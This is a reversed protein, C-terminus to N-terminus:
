PGEPGILATERLKSHGNEDLRDWAALIIAKDEEGGLQALTYAWCKAYDPHPLKQNLVVRARDRLLAKDVAEIGVSKSRRVVDFFLDSELRIPLMGLALVDVGRRVFRRTLEPNKAEDLYIILARLVKMRLDEGGEEFVSRLLRDVVWPPDRRIERLEDDTLGHYLQFRPDQWVQDDGPAHGEVKEVILREIAEHAPDAPHRTGQNVPAGATPRPRAAPVPEPIWRTLALGGGTLAGLFALM